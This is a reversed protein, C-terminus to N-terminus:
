FQYGNDRAGLQRLAKDIESITRQLTTQDFEITFSLENGFGVGDRLFGTATMHGLGDTEIKLGVQDEVTTFEARGKLDRYLCEVQGKFRIIDSVTLLLEIQGFFKGVQIEV